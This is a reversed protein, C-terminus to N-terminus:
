QREKLIACAELFSGATAKKRFLHLVRAVGNGGRAHFVGAILGKQGQAECHSLGARGEKM